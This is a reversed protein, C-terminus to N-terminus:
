EKAYPSLNYFFHKHEISFIERALIVGRRVKFKIESSQEQVLSPRFAFRNDPQHTNVVAHVTYRTNGRHWAISRDCSRAHSM